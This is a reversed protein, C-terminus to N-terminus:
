RKKLIDSTKPSTVPLMAQVQLQEQVPSSFSAIFGVAWMALSGNVSFPTIGFDLNNYIVTYCM